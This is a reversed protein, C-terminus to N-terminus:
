PLTPWPLLTPTLSCPPALAEEHPSRALSRSFFWAFFGSSRALNSNNKQNAKLRLMRLREECSIDVSLLVLESVAKQQDHLRQSVSSLNLGGLHRRARRPPLPVHLLQKLAGHAYQPFRRWFVFSCTIGLHLPPVNM